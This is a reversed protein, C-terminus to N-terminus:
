PPDLVCACCDPPRMIPRQGAPCAACRVTSCDMRPQGPEKTSSCACLALLGMAFALRRLSKM